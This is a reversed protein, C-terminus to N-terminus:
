HDNDMIKEIEKKSVSFGFIWLMRPDKGTVIDSGHPIDSVPYIWM